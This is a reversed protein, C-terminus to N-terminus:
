INLRAQEIAVPAGGTRCINRFDAISM